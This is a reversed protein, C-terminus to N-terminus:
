AVRPLARLYNIIERCIKAHEIEQLRIRNITERFDSDLVEKGLVAYEREAEEELSEFVEIQGILDDRSNM